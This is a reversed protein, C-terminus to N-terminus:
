KDWAALNLVAEKLYYRGHVMYLFYYQINYVLFVKFVKTQMKQELPEGKRALTPQIFPITHYPLVEILGCANNLDPNRRKTKM